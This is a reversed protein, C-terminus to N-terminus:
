GNQNKGKPLMSSRKLVNLGDPCNERGAATLLRFFPTSKLEQMATPLSPRRPVTRIQALTSTASLSSASIGLLDLAQSLEAQHKSAFEDYTIPKLPPSTRKSRPM